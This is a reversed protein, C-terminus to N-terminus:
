RCGIDATAIVVHSTWIDAESEWVTGVTTVPTEFGSHQRNVSVSDNVSVLSFRDIYVVRYSKSTRIDQSWSSAYLTYIIVVSTQVIASSSEKIM